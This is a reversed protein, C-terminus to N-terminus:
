NYSLSRKVYPEEQDCGLRGKRGEGRGRDRGYKGQGGVGEGKSSMGHKGPRWVNKRSKGVQFEKEVPWCNSAVGSRELVLEETIGGQKSSRLGRGRGWVPGELM